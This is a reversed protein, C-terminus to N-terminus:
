LYDVYCNLFVGFFRCPVHWHRAPCPYWHKHQKGSAQVEVFLVLELLLTPMACICPTPSLWASPCSASSMASHHLRQVGATTQLVELLVCCVGLKIHSASQQCVLSKSNVTPRVSPLQLNATWSLLPQASLGESPGRLRAVGSSSRTRLASAAVYGLESELLYM